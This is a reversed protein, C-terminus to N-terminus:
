DAASLVDICGSFRKSIEHTRDEAKSRNVGHGFDGLELAHVLLFYDLAVSRSVQTLIWAMDCRRGSSNPLRTM